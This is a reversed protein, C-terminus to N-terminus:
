PVHRRYLQADSVDTLQSWVPYFEEFIIERNYNAQTYQESVSSGLMM